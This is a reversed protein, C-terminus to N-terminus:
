LSNRAIREAPYDTMLRRQSASNRWNKCLIERRYEGLTDVWRIARVGSNGWCNFASEFFHAEELRTSLAAIANGFTGRAVVMCRARLMFALDEGLPRGIRVETLHSTRCLSNLANWIPNRDNEAVLTVRSWSRSELVRQYFALPAQGYGPHVSSGSFVDGARVHIVLHDEDLATDSAALKLLPRLLEMMAHHSNGGSRLGTLRATNFFKGVVVVEEDDFLVGPRNVLRLGNPLENVGDKLWWFGPLYVSRLGHHIALKLAHSAQQV